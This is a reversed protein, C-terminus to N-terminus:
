DGMLQIFVDELEPSIREIHAQQWDHQRLLGELEAEGMDSPTYVHVSAGFRRASIRELANIREMMAYSPEVSVAYVAGDYLKTLEKPTGEALKRGRHMFAASDALEVEDMYPTSVIICSGKDRLDRLIQWFQRRSLPDVGTTPEDLILVKPDHILACSLALKQKMGGSLKAARRKRFSGLGSFAYLPERKEEFAKGNIEFLGAYFRLNEEVTLDPYLSFNQPMYGLIDKVATFNSVLDFGGIEVRGEAFDLLGCMSRFLSTKGAGDPGVLAFIRGRDCSFSVDDVATLDGYRKVIHEVIVDSM